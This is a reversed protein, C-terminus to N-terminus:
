DSKKSEFFDILEEDSANKFFQYQKETANIAKEVREDYKELNRELKILEKSKNQFHKIFFRSFDLPFVWLLQMLNIAKTIDYEPAYLVDYEPGKKRFDKYGFIQSSFTSGHTVKAFTDLADEPMDYGKSKLFATLSKEHFKKRYLKDKRYTDKEERLLMECDKPEHHVYMLMHLYNQLARNLVMVSGYYGHALDIKSSRVIHLAANALNLYVTLFDKEIKKTSAKYMGLAVRITTILFATFEDLLQFPFKLNKSSREYTEKEKDFINQLNIKKTFKDAM